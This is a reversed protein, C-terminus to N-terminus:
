SHRWRTMTPRGPTLDAINFNPKILVDKGKVSNIKLAGLSAKVGHNRDDTKVLTVVGTTSGMDLGGSIGLFVAGGAVGSYKLFERRSLGTM